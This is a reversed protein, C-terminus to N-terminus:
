QRSDTASSHAGDSPSLPPSAPAPYCPHWHLIHAIAQVAQQPALSASPEMLSRRISHGSSPPAAVEAGARMIDRIPRDFGIGVVAHTVEESPAKFQGRLCNPRKRHGCHEAFKAHRPQAVTPPFASRGSVAAFGTPFGSAPFGCTRNSSRPPSVPRSFSVGGKRVRCAM